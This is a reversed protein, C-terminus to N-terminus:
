PRPPQAWPTETSLPAPATAAEGVARHPPVEAAAAVPRRPAAAWPSSDSGAPPGSGASGVAARMGPTPPPPNGLPARSSGGQYPVLPTNLVRERSGGLPDRVPLASSLPPAATASAHCPSPTTRPPTPPPLPLRGASGVRREGVLSPPRARGRWYTTGSSCHGKPRPGCQVRGGGLDSSALDHKRLSPPLRGVSRGLCHFLVALLPWSSSPLPATVLRPSASRGHDGGRGIRAPGAASPCCPVAWVTLVDAKHGGSRARPQTGCGSLHSVPTWLPATTALYGPPLAIPPFPPFPSLFSKRHTQSLRWRRLSFLFCLCWGDRVLLRLSLPSLFGIRLRRRNHHGCTGSDLIRSASDARAPIHPPPLGERSFFLAGRVRTIRRCRRPLDPSASM